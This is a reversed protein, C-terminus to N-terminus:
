PAAARGQRRFRAPPLEFQRKFARNFAAESEYGVEAAIQAVPKRTAGLLRAARQMRIRTLYSLPPESLFRQFREAMVSRSTGAAEALADVSWARGPERHMLALSRGVIPDRAGALWGAETEGLGDVYRRLSEIFLAEAMRSLLIARGARDQGAESALYRISNELWGGAEDGRINIRFLPPLGSLVLGATHHDCGFFGCVVKTRAGGGGHSLSMLDGAVYDTVSRATDVFHPTHGNWIRHVDGHPVVLVDGPGLKLVPGNGVQAEAEGELFLHYIVLHETGPALVPAVERAAPSEVAWPATFDADFFIAGTMQVAQLAQSLADM